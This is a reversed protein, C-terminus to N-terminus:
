RDLPKVKLTLIEFGRFSCRIRGNEVACAEIPNENMDCLWADQVDFHLQLVADTRTNSVEYLRLILCDSEEAEKFVECLINSRDIMVPTYSDPLTDEKGCAPVATMPNNLDYALRVTDSQHLSWQHSYRTEICSSEGRDSTEDPYTPSRLLSLQMVGDHIDYGYKCDNMLAVGYNGESLDAFKHGCVEFKQADWSTNKHTPREVSGYQCEYTARTANIDVPFAVKLMQHDEHWDLVTEFDIRAVDDSLWITQLVSSHM